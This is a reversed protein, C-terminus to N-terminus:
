SLERVDDGAMVVCDVGYVGREVTLTCADNIAEVAGMTTLLINPLGSMVHALVKTAVLGLKAPLM